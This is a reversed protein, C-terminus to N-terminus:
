RPLNRELYERLNQVFVERAEGSGDTVPRAFLFRGDPSADYFDRYSNNVM